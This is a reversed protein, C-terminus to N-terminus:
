FVDKGLEEAPLHKVMRMTKDGKVKGTNKSVETQKVKEWKNFAVDIDKKDDDALAEVESKLQNERQYVDNRADDIIDELSNVSCILKRTQLANCKFEM